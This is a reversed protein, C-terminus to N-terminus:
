FSEKGIFRYEKVEISGSDGGRLDKVLRRQIRVDDIAIEELSMEDENLKQGNKFCAAFEKGMAILIRSRDTQDGLENSQKLSPLSVGAEELLELIDLTKLWRNSLSNKLVLLAVTRLFNMQTSVLRKQTERHGDMLPPLKFINQVIWDLPRAWWRFDHRCEDTQPRGQCVWEDIVAAISGFYLSNNALVHKILDGEPYTKFKYSPEQKRLQVSCCRNVLDQTFECQNSTLYLIVRRLDIEIPQMYPIRALHFSETLLSEIAPSDIKGRINDLSIFSHGRILCMDLAEELTGVGRKQTITKPHNNYLAATLKVSYGKGTQSEDAEVSFLPARGSIIRGTILGPTLLQAIARSKDSPNAFKFDVLLGLLLEIAKNLAVKIPLRSYSLIGHEKNYGSITQLVDGKDLILIPCSSLVKIEPVEQQFSSSDMILQAQSSNLITPEVTEGKYKVVSAVLEIESAFSTPKIPNLKPAEDDILVKVLGGGRIFFRETDRLVLGAQRGAAQISQAKGPTILIPLASNLVTEKSPRHVPCEDVLRKLDQITRGHMLWDSVDAGHNQTFELGPLQVVKLSAVKGSLERIITDRRLYGAVDEDFLLVVNAQSLTETYQRRWPGGAGETSTTAVLGGERLRDCNKEGEPLYITEGKEKAMIVEPLRYLVRQIDGLGKIWKGDCYREAYFDKRKKKGPEIRVKRYLVSGQVDCYPYETRKKPSTSQNPNNFLDGIKIDLATCIAEPTCNRFCHILIKGTPDESISLSPNKDEHAPCCAMYGNKSKHNRRGTKSELRQLIEQLQM